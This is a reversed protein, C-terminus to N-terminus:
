RRSALFAVVDDLESTTLVSAYSPMGEGWGELFHATPDVISERIYDKGSVGDVRDAADTGITMLSPGGVSPRETITHCSSCGEVGDLTQRAFLDAGRSSDGSSSCAVAGWAVVLTLMARNALRMVTM